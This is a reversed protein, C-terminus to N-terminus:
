GINYSMIITTGTENSSINFIDSVKKMNPLGMGAGFGFERAENSATSYGEQMALDIDLIGPGKDEAILRIHDESIEISLQGGSSHIIINIEAEYAAVAIRRIKGSELGLQKLIKKIDSSAKGANIYDNNDIKYNFKVVQSM